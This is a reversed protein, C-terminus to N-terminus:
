RNAIPEGPLVFGYKRMIPRGQQSNIFEAFQRAQKERRTRKM